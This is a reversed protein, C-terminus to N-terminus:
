GAHYGSGIPSSGLDNDAGFQYTIASGTGNRHAKISKAYFYWTGPYEPHGWVWEIVVGTHAVTNEYSKYGNPTWTRYAGAIAGGYNVFGFKSPTVPAGAPTSASYYFRDGEMHLSSTVTSADFHVPFTTLQGGANKVTFGLDVTGVGHGNYGYTGHGSFDSHYTAYRNWCGGSKCTSMTSAGGDDAALKAAKQALAASGAEDPCFWNGTREAVPLKCVPDIGDSPDGPPGDPLNPDSPDESAQAAVHSSHTLYDHYGPDAAHASGPVAAAAAGAALLGAAM